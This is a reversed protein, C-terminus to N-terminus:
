PGSGAAPDTAPATTPDTTAAPKGVPLLGSWGCAPNLCRYRRVPQWLSRLRDRWRRPQRMTESNCM